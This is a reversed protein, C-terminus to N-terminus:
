ESPEGVEKEQRLRAAKQDFIMLVFKIRRETNKELLKLEKSKQIEEKKGLLIPNMYGDNYLRVVAGQIRPDEGEPFVININKGKLYEKMEEYVTNDM